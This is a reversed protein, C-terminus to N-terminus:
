GNQEVHRDERKCEQRRNPPHAKDCMSFIYTDDTAFVLKLPIIYESEEALGAFDHANKNETIGWEGLCWYLCVGRGVAEKLFEELRFSAEEAFFSDLGAVLNCYVGLDKTPSNRLNSGIRSFSCGPHSRPFKFHRIAALTRNTESSCFCLSNSMIGARTGLVFAFLCFKGGHEGCVDAVPGVTGADACNKSKSFMVFLPVACNAHMSTCELFEHAARILTSM